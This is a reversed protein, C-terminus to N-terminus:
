GSLRTGNLLATTLRGDVRIKLEHLAAQVPVQLALGHVLQWGPPERSSFLSRAAACTWTGDQRVHNEVIM